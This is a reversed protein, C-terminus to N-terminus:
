PAFYFLRYFTTGITPDNTVTVSNTATSGAISVWNTKLGLARSNTQSQLTYGTHDVPWSLTMTNGAVVRTMPVTTLSPQRTITVTYSKVTVLDQATVRVEVVNPVAPNVNLALPGSPSGSTIANTAGGYIVELTAGADASTPTVTIPSSGYTETAAYSVVNSDFAPSLAAAPSLVLASLDANSSTTVAPVYGSLVEVSGNLALKNTWVYTVVNNSPDLGSVPLNVTAFSGSVATSFLKFKDGTHLVPGINTVNLTGSATVSAATIVDNSAFANTRNLEMNVAGALNVAGTVTLSGISFGPAVTTTSEATLSGLITGVGTLTQTSVLAYIGNTVYFSNTVVEIASIDLATLNSIYGMTTADFVASAGAMTLGSGNTLTNPVSVRLTGNSVTTMGTYNIRPAYAAVDITSTDPMTVVNTTVTAGNLTLSGVGTKAIRNNGSIFGGYVTSLGKGGIVWYTANLTVSPGGISGDGILAGLLMTSDDRHFISGRLDFLTNDGGGVGGNGFFMRLSANNSIIVTGLFNAFGNQGALSYTGTLINTASAGGNFQGSFTNGTTTSLFTAIANDPTSYSAGVFPIPSGTTPMQVVAGNSVVVLGSGAQGVNGFQLTTGSALVTGGSYANNGNLRLTGGSLKIGLSGSAGDSIFSGSTGGGIVTLVNSVSGAANGVTGAGGNLSAVVANTGLQLSGSNVTLGSTGGGIANPHNVVLGGANLTTAGAYSSNGSLTLTGVGIKDLGLAGSTNSIAGSFVSSSNDFGVTLTSVGGASNNLTGNGSLSNITDNFNNLDVVGPSVVALGGSGSSPIANNVGIALTGNSVVTGGSYSNLTSVTLTGSGIKTLATAGGILGAGSMTYNTATTDIVTSGPSLAGVLTVAPNSAGVSNFLVNDTVSFVSRAAGNLFNTTTNNDWLLNPNGGTWVLNKPVYAAVVLDVNGGTVQISAATLAVTGNGTVTVSYSGGSAVSGSAQQAIRYTGIGLPSAGANVVSFANGGLALTGQAVYLSPHTTDGSFATPTFTLGITKGTLDNTSTAESNFTAATSGVATGTGSASIGTVTPVYNLGAGLPTTDLIAGAAIKADPGTGLASANAILNTGSNFSWKGTYGNATALSVTGPGNVNLTVNPGGGSVTGTGGVTFVDGASTTALNVSSPSVNVVTLGNLSCTGNARVTGGVSVTVATQNLTVGDLRLTGNTSALVNATTLTGLSGADRVALTGASVHAGGTVGVDVQSTWAGSAGSLVWTGVGQKFVYLAGLETLSQITNTGTNTGDLVLTLPRSTASQSNANGFILVANSDTADNLFTYRGNTSSPLRFSLPVTFKQSSAVPANMRIIGNHSVHLLSTGLTQAFVYAGANFDFVMGGIQRSRTAAVTFDDIQIPDAVGGILSGPIPNTFTCIDNNVTNGTMNIGGPIAAGVWNATNTWVSSAPAAAWTQSAADASASLAVVSCCLTAKLINKIILTKM